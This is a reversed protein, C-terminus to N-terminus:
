TPKVSKLNFVCISELNATTTTTTALRYFCTQLAGVQFLFRVHAALRLMINRNQKQIFFFGSYRYTRFSSICIAKALLLIWDFVNETNINDDNGFLILYVFLRLDTASPVNKMWYSGFAHGSINASHVNGFYTTHITDKATLCFSGKNNDTVGM